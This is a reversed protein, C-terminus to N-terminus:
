GNTGKLRFQHEGIWVKAAPNGHTTTQTITTGIDTLTYITLHNIGADKAPGSLYELEYTFGGCSLGGNTM